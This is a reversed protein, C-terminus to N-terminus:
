IYGLNKLRFTMAKNSVYLCEALGDISTVGNSILSDIAVRPMLLEAAFKNAEIERYDDVHDRRYLTNEDDIFEAKHLVHHGIEHAITFRNRTASFNRNILIIPQGEVYRIAGSVGYEEPNNDIDDFIGYRVIAGLNQAIEMVDIPLKRDWFRDLLDQAKM